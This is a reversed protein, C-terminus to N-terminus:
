QQHAAYANHVYHQYGYGLAGTLYAGALGQAGGVGAYPQLEYDLRHYYAEYAPLMALLAKPKGALALMSLM